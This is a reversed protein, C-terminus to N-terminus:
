RSNKATKKYPGLFKDGNFHIMHEPADAIWVETEWAIDKAFKRYTVRDPFATILIVDATCAKTLDLLTKRRLETIPNATTVAEILYLWNKSKSYAVVDPLKDHKLEFFKLKALRKEDLLLAKKETDGVYLVEAGFGFIPLFSEIINKQLVNHKGASFSLSMGGPINVPIRALQRERQMEDALSPRHNLHAKLLTSWRPTGFARLVKAAEPHIAFGRTGDNTNADPNSASKLVIMAEIPLVLDKRRIDDYSSDAISEGLNANMFAIIERSRLCRGDHSDKLESWAIGPKIDALALVAKAMKEQRRQSLGEMPIGLAALAELAQAILADLKSPKPM